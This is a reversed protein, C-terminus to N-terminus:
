FKFFYNWRWFTLGRGTLTSTDWASLCVSLCLCVSMVFSIASKRLKAFLNLLHTRCVGWPVYCSIWNGTESELSSGCQPYASNFTREQPGRSNLKNWIHESVYLVFVQICQNDFIREFSCGREGSRRTVHAHGCTHVSANICGCFVEQSQSSVTPTDM